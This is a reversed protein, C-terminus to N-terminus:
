ILVFLLAWILGLYGIIGSFVSVALIKEDLAGTQRFFYLFLLERAGFGSISIPLVLILNIIPIIVLISILSLNAKFILSYFWFPLVWVPEAFMSIIFCILIRKKNGKKFIAVMELTKHLIKFRGFVKDYDIRFVTLYFFLFVLFMSLFLWFIIDPYIFGYLKGILAALFACLSFASLGVIRDIIVSAALETKTLKPYKKSAIAWKLVDGGVISPILVGYFSAQFNIKVFNYFDIIKPEKLVILCWRIAWVVSGILFWFMIAVVFWLPVKSIEMGVKGVDVKSFVFYVLIVTLFYRSWKSTVIQKIKGM